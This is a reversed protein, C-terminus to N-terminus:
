FKSPFAAQLEEIDSEESSSVESSSSSSESESSSAPRSNQVAKNHQAVHLIANSAQRQQGFSQVRQERQIAADLAATIAPNNSTRVHQVIDQPLQDIVVPDPYAGEGKAGSSPFPYGELAGGAAYEINFRRGQM